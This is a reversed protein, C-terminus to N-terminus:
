TLAALARIESDRGTEPVKRESGEHRTCYFLCHQRRLNSTFTFYMFRPDLPFTNFIHGLLSIILTPLYECTVDAAGEQHSGSGLINLIAMWGNEIM